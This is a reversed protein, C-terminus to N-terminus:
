YAGVRHGWVILSNNPSTLPIEPLVESNPITRLLEALTYGSFKEEASSNWTIYGRPANLIVSQLYRDQVERTLESFAYNSILLDPSCEKPNRGDVLDISGEIKASNLFKYGLELVVPLDYLKFNKVGGMAATIATQGGFGIGIEAIQLNSIPGFLRELDGYVKLYRLITPSMLGIRSFKWRLPRGILDIEKAVGLSSNELLTPNKERIFSVYERGQDITVHDLVDIISTCSRFKSFIALSDVSRACLTSFGIHAFEDTISTNGVVFDPDDAIRWVSFHNRVRLSSNLIGYKRVFGFYEFMKKM